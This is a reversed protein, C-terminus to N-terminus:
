SPVINHKFNLNLKVRLFFFNCQIFIDFIKEKVLFIQPIM